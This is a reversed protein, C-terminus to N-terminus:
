DVESVYQSEIVFVERSERDGLVCVMVGDVRPLEMILEAEFDEFGPAGEVRAKLYSGSM